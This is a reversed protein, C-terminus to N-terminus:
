KRHRGLEELRALTAADPGSESAKRIQNYTRAIVDHHRLLVRLQDVVTAEVKRCANVSTQGIGRM